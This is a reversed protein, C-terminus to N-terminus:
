APPVDTPPSGDLGTTAPAPLAAPAADPAAPPQPAPAPEPGGEPAPAVARMGGAIEPAGEARFRIKAEVEITHDKLFAQLVRPLDSKLVLQSLEKSLYAFFQEKAQATNQIVYNRIERPLKSEAVYARVSEETMFVAGITAFLAKKMMGGWAASSGPSGPDSVGGGAGRKGNEMEDDPPRAM